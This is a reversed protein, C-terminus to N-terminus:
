GETKIITCHSIDVMCFTWLLEGEELYTKINKLMVGVAALVVEQTSSPMNCTNVEDPVDNNEYQMTQLLEEPNTSAYLTIVDGALRTDFMVNASSAMDRRVQMDDACAIIIDNGKQEKTWKFGRPKLRESMQALAVVKFELEHEPLYAQNQLNKGEVIDDDYGVHDIGAKSLAISMYSGIAGLGVVTINQDAM